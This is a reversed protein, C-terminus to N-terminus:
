YSEFPFRKRKFMDQIYDVEIFYKSISIEDDESIGDYKYRILQYIKKFNWCRFVDYEEAFHTAHDWKITFQQSENGHNLLDPIHYFYLASIFRIIFRIISLHYLTKGDFDNMFIPINEMKLTFKEHNMIEHLLRINHGITYIPRNKVM